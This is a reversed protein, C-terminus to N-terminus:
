RPSPMLALGTQMCMTHMLMVDGGIHRQLLERRRDYYGVSVERGKGDLSEGGVIWM